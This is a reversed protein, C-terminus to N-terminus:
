ASREALLPAADLGYLSATNEWLIMRQEDESLHGLNAAITGESEMFTGEDHPYDNSWLIRDVGIFEAHALGYVDDTFTVWGQRRFYDSAREALRQKIIHGRRRQMVDMAQLTWGLWGLEAEVIVFRLRPHRELVGSSTLNVLPSMGAAMGMVTRHLGESFDEEAAMRRGQEWLAPDMRRVDAFDAGIFNNGSFVHFGAIVDLDELASWLVDYEPRDYPLWPIAVPLFVTQLGLDRLRTLEALTADFDGAMPVMGVPVYRHMHGSAWQAIWENYVRALASQYAANPSSYISGPINPYLVEADVGDRAQERQRVAHDLGRTPDSRHQKQLTVEDAGRARWEEASNATTGHIPPAGDVVLCTLGNRLEFRPAIDRFEAPLREWFGEPENIHCDASIVPYPRAGSRPRSGATAVM